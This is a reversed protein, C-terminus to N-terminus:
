LRYGMQFYENSEEQETPDPIADKATANTPAAVCAKSTQQILTDLKQLVLNQQTELQVQREEMRNLQGNVDGKSGEFESRMTNLNREIQVRARSTATVSQKPEDDSSLTPDRSVLRRISLVPSNPLSSSDGDSGGVATTAQAKNLGHHLTPPFTSKPTLNSPQRGVPAASSPKSPSSKNSASSAFPLTSSIGFPRYTKKPPPKSISEAGSSSSSGGAKSGSRSLKKTLNWM